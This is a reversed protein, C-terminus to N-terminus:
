TLLQKRMEANSSLTASKVKAEIEDVAKEAWAQFAWDIYLRQSRENFYLYRVSWGETLEYVLHWLFDPFTGRDGLGRKGTVLEYFATRFFREDAVSLDFIFVRNALAQIGLKRYSDLDRRMGEGERGNLWPRRM